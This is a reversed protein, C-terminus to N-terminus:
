DKCDSGQVKIRRGILMRVEKIVAACEISNNEKSGTEGKQERGRGM